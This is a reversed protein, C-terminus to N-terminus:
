ITRGGSAKVITKEAEHIQSHIAFMGTRLSGRWVHKFVSERQYKSYYNTDSLNKELLFTWYSLNCRSMGEWQLIWFRDIFIKLKLPKVAPCVIDFMMRCMSAWVDCDLFLFLWTKSKQRRSQTRIQYSALFTKLPKIIKMRNFLYMLSATKKSHM